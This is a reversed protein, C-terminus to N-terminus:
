YKIRAIHIEVFICEM